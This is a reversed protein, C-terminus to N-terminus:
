LYRNRKVLLAQNTIISKHELVHWIVEHVTNWTECQPRSLISAIGCVVNEFANEQIFMYINSLIGSSNTGLSQILLTGANTWTIAQYWGPSLGNDPGITTLKGVYIHTM